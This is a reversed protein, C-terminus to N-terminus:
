GLEWSFDTQKLEQHTDTAQGTDRAVLEHFSVGKERSTMQDLKLQYAIVKQRWYEQQKAVKDCESRIEKMNEELVDLTLSEAFDLQDVVGTAGPLRSNLLQTQKTVMNELDKELDMAGEARDTWLNLRPLLVSSLELDIKGLANVITRTDGMGYLGAPKRPLGKLRQKKEWAKRKRAREGERENM